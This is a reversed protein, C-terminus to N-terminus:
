SGPVDLQVLIMMILHEMLLLCLSGDVQNSVLLSKRLCEMLILILKARINILPPTRFHIDVMYIGTM